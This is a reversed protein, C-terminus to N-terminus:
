APLRGEELAHCAVNVNGFSRIHPVERQCRETAFACRPHFSCGSPPAIPNPVEGVARSRKLEISANLDPISEFLMKTYPHSPNRFIAKADGWEVLRGLYMVGVDDSMNSIVALNHSITLYTLNFESQLEKMLNLVQAQVSVDLASTPEDCILFETNSALARAISIRQRQGGSFEHPYRKADSARLGVHNLLDRVKQNIAVDSSMLRYARLPEAVIRGVRWSPNLSAYPDQFVMQRRRLFSAANARSVRVGDYVIHGDSLPELGILCRAVTSKGCGSEGVLGFTKGKKIRFSVDNVAHLVKQEGIGLISQLVGGGLYFSKKINNVELLNSEETELTPDNTTNLQDVSTNRDKAHDPRAGWCAVKNKAGVQRIIPRQERCRDHVGFCRPAFACTSPIESLGPTSGEIQLLRGAGGMKPIANMLGVTYPHQPNDILSRTEAIEALRGAYLVATRSATEAIVGMDHTILMVSMGRRQCLSKLLEIIQAQISVDLATTPEDAILLKPEACIALAIVIRQRMGGSFQHPFQHLRKEAGPIGVEQLLELARVRAKTSTCGTHTVITEEIQRGVSILPNLSTLPDQFVAGIERGRIARYQKPSLNDIRRGALSITGSSISGPKEILGLIASGVMSKGAGSEGIIGLVEGEDIHLSIDDVATLLEGKLDFTVFLNEINLLQNAM